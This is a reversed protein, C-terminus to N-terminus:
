SEWPRPVMSPKKAQGETVSAHQSIRMRMALLSLAKTEATQMRLLQAYDALDLADDAEARAILQAVRRASVVHRCYQVLLPHTERPFWDASLRNVMAQWEASQEETLESPPEPRRVTEVPNSAIVTLSAAPKRGKQRM